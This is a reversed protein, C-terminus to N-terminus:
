SQETSDEKTNVGLKTLIPNAIGTLMEIGTRVTAQKMFFDLLNVKFAKKVLDEYHTPYEDLHESWDVVPVYPSYMDGEKKAFSLGAFFKHHLEEFLEDSFNDSLQSVLATLMFDVNSGEVIEDLSESDKKNLLDAMATLSPALALGVKKGELLTGITSWQTLEYRGEEVDLTHKTKSLKIM